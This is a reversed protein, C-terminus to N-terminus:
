LVRLRVFYFDREKGFRLRRAWSSPFDKIEEQSIKQVDEMVFGQKEIKERMEERLYKETLVPLHLEETKNGESEKSYGFVIDVIAGKQCIRRIPSFTEEEGLVIGRLLGSWPFNIFVQNAVGDLEEPLNEVGSLVFLANKLGGKQPKKYIKASIESVSKHSPDIGIVFRDPYEKALDYVFKGDGTGIDVIVGTM